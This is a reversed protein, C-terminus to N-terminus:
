GDRIPSSILIREVKSPHPLSAAGSYLCVETMSIEEREDSSKASEQEERSIAPMEGLEINHLNLELSEDHNLLMSDDEGQLSESKRGDPAISTAVNGINENMLSEVESSPSALMIEIQASDEGSSGKISMDVKEMAAATDPFTSGDTQVNEQISEESPGDSSVEVISDAKLSAPAIDEDVTKMELVEEVDSVTAMDETPHSKSDTTLSADHNNESISITEMSVADSLKSFGISTPSDQKITEM